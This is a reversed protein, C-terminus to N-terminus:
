EHRDQNENKNALGRKMRKVDQSMKKVAQRGIEKAPDEAASTEPGDDKDVKPTKPPAERPADKPQSERARPESTVESQESESTPESPSAAVASTRKSPQQSQPSPLATSPDGAQADSAPAAVPSNSMRRSLVKGGIWGAGIGVVVVLATVMMRSARKSKNPTSTLTEDETTTVPRGEIARNFQVKSLRM